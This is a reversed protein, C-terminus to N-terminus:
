RCALGPAVISVGFPPNFANTSFKPTPKFFVVEPPSFWILLVILILDSVDM